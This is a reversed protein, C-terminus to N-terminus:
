YHLSVVQNNLTDEALERLIFKPSLNQDSDNDSDIETHPHKLSIKKTTKLKKKM